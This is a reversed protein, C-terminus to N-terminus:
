AKCDRCSRVINVSIKGTVGKIVLHGTFRPTVKIIIVKKERENLQIAKIFTSAVINFITSREENSVDSKFLNANTVIEGSQSTFTWLM